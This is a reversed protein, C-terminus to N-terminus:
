ANRCKSRSPLTPRFVSWAVAEPGGTAFIWGVTRMLNPRSGAKWRRPSLGASLADSKQGKADYVVQGRETDLKGHGEFHTGHGAEQDSYHHYEQWLHNGRIVEGDADYFVVGVPMEDIVQAVNDRPQGEPNANPQKRDM